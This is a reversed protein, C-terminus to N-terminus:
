PAIRSKPTVSVSGPNAPMMRVIPTAASAFTTMKSRMLSSTRSPFVTRAAMWVPYWFPKWVITSALTTVHMVARTSNATAVAPTLPKARISNMPVTIESTVATAAVRAMSPRSEPKLHNSLGTNMPAEPWCPPLNRFMSKMAFRLSHNTMDPTTTATAIMESPTRPRLRPMSKLPPVWIVNLVGDGTLM